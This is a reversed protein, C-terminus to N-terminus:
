RSIAAPIVWRDEGRLMASATPLEAPAEWRTKAWRVRESSEAGPGISEIEVYRVTQERDPQRWNHWGERRVVESMTTRIFSTQAHARWPRGLYSKTEPRGTIESDLFVLGDPHDLPTAAATIYGDALCHIECREFVATAGGFIFDVDGEIYCDAFYHRGRNVLLTDQWGLFRCNRFVVRDGDVRVALAQGVPGADNAITLNEVIFGDGDVQLTPTRFTGIKKGDNGVMNAHIGHVLVTTRPDEGILAINGRERQVYVRERYIGSKVLIVWRKVAGPEARKQDAGYIAKEISTYDGSGDLAVVADPRWPPLLEALGDAKLWTALGLQQRVMLDVAMAAVRRAGLESYHTDDKLGDPAGSVVGPEFWLHLQKSGEVGESEELRTTAWEMELLPVSERMALARVVDPYAGHTPVLSRGPADWKRRAVSTALIPNAGKARTEQVMRLLNERYSGQPATYREPSNVKEDNHGFQIIVWDDAQLKEVVKHWSGEEIFSKSSRGNVAHNEVKLPAQVFEPLLQGWGREPYDLAPKDALTSDGVLYLTPAAGASLVVLWFLAVLCRCLILRM